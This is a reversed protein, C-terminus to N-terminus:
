QCTESGRRRIFSTLTELWEPSSTRIGIPASSPDDIWRGLAEIRIEIMEDITSEDTRWDSGNAYGALFAPRFAKYRDPHNEIDSDFLVMYLSNALDYEIPGYGCDDFDFIRLLASEVIVNRDSFDGHLLQWGSRETARGTAALAAIPPIQFSELRGLAEHLRALSGGLRKAGDASSVDLRNGEIFPTATMLWGGIPQVLVGDIRIPPVVNPYGAGLSAVAELRSVLVSRDALRSETLKVAARRGDLVVDFVRSQKGAHLEDIVEVGWRLWEDPSPLM